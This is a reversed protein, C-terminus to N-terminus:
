SKRGEGATMIEEAGASRLLTGVAEYDKDECRVWLGFQDESFRPDYVPAIGVRPLRAHLLMGGLTLLGGFLITLEFVIVLFPPISVIPKGGTILPYYLSTAITLILGVIGGLLCGVLTFFRVPSPPKELAEDIEHNPVPSLAQLDKYGSGHLEEIAKLISDLHRFSGVVGQFSDSGKDKAM